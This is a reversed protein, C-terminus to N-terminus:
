TRFIRGNCARDLSDELVVELPEWISVERRSVRCRYAGIRLGLSAERRLAQAFARDTEQNPSFQRADARQVIFLVLAETEKRRAAQALAQIHRLGRATPADPFLAVQGSVLTVSKVEVLCRKGRPGFFAFDLRSPGFAVERQYREYGQFERLRGEEIAEAV